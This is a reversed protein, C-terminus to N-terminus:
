VAREGTRAHFQRAEPERERAAEELVALTGAATTAWSYRAGRALGRRRLDEARDPQTAVATMAASLTQADVPDVHLADGATIALMAPTRPAIVPLGVRLAEYVPLSAADYLAGVVLATAANYLENLGTDDVRPLHVVRDAVGAAASEAAIDLEPPCRGVLALRFPSSHARAFAGFARIVTPLNRRRSMTGVCLMFPLDDGLRRIRTARAHSPNPDRVFQEAPALPVVRIRDRPVRYADVVEDRLAESTVIVRTALRASRGYLWRYFTRDALGTAEPMVANAADHITVVRRIKCRLPLTYSPGWLVGSTARGALVTNEWLFARRYPKLVEATVNPPLPVGDPHLPKPICFRVDDFVNPVRESSFHRAINNLYRPVGTTGHTRWGNIWLKM